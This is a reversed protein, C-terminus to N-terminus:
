LDAGTGRSPAVPRIDATSQEWRQTDGYFDLGIEGLRGQRNKDVGLGLIKRGETDTFDRVPWLFMVVDADQEIAGSDRLDSLGPRKNGRKEVDRNLQSLAVVAVGLEKALAKIGRSIEEIESNRNGDRRTSACLQLYDIILVKLGKISRAKARISRLTLAPEDDVHFPMRSLAEIAETSHQWDVADMRGTLLASYSVRGLNAIARDAVEGESMEMSCFLVPLGNGALVLAISEAFSSKGVSPRAALIYLGGARLGNLLRDLLPIGTTWGPAVRGEQLATHHEAREFAIDALARPARAVHRRALEGFKAAIADAAAVPDAAVRAAEISEGALAILTRQISLERVRGCYRRFNAASPVGQALKNLYAITEAGRAEGAANLRDFVTIPDAAHGAALLASAAGFIQRHVFSYFDSASLKDGLRDWSQNDVLLAGLLSQELEESHPLTHTADTSNM